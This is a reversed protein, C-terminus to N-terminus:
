IIYANKLKDLVMLMLYLEKPNRIGISKATAIGCIANRVMSEIRNTASTGTTALIM